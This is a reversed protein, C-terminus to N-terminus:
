EKNVLNELVSDIEDFNFGKRYLYGKVKYKRVRTSNRSYRQWASRAKQVLLRQQVDLNPQFNAREMIQEVEDFSYGKRILGAKTKQLNNRFSDRHKRFLKRAQRVGNEMMRSRPYFEHLASHVLDSTIGKLRLKHGIVLPGYRGNSLETRVYCDAYHRDDVLHLRELRKIIQDILAQDTTESNLHKRVESKTRLRRAVFRIARDYLKSRYDAAMLRRQLSKDITKGKMVHYKLMVRESMPFAYRGNIYVNYRGRRKQAKIMTIIRKLENGGTALRM